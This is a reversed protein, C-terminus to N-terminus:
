RSECRKWSPVSPRTARGNIGVVFAGSEVDKTVVANANIVAGDGISVAGVVICGPFLTVNQGLIPAVDSPDSAITVGQYVTLGHGAVTHAHIVIGAGHMITLDPLQAGPLIEVAFLVRNLLSVLGAAAFWGRRYFYDALRYLRVSHFGAAAITLVPAGTALFLRAESGAVRV